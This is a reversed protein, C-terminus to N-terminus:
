KRRKLLSEAVLFDFADDIDVSREKPMLYIRSGPLIVRRGRLLTKTWWVYVSSNMDYVTPASQRTKFEGPNVLTVAGRANIKVMNFYPNRHAEAVSFVSPARRRVLLDISEDIDRVGRLPTTVHLLVIIDYAGDDRDRLWNVAHVLVDVTGSSDRALRAPRLFPVEAGHRRSVAAIRPSDTSVIVRDIYRSKRAQDITYAILPKGALLRINKGPLGKSGGRAPIICLIRFKGYM